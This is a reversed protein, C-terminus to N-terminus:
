LYIRDTDTVQMQRDQELRTKNLMGILFALIFGGHSEKFTEHFFGYIIVGIYGWFLGMYNKYLFKGVIFLIYIYLLFGIIGTRFLMDTYQNHASGSHSPFLIWVGLFGSGTFPNSGVYKLILNLIYIRYGESSEPDDISKEIGGDDSFFSFLRNNFFEFFEPYALNFVLLAILIFLLSFILRILAKVNGKKLSGALNSYIYILISGGLAVLGSRSFTLLIGLFIIFVLIFKLITYLGKFRHFFLVWISIIYVFGYRQGGVADKAASGLSAGGLQVYLLITLLSSIVSVLILAFSQVMDDTIEIFLFSFLSIFLIFSISRRFFFDIYWFQYATAIIFIISFILMFVRLQLKPIILKRLGIVTILPFFIFSYNGSLGDGGVNISYKSLFIAFLLILFFIKIKKKCYFHTM